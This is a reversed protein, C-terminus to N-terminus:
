LNEAFFDALKNEAQKVFEPTDYMAIHTAGEVLFLEKKGTALNVAHESFQRTDSIDGSIMLLPQTLLAPVYEFASFGMICEISSFLMQNTSRPHQARKTRYYEWAEKQLVTTNEDFEEASNPVYSIYFPDAGNAEKTRQEGAAELQAALEEKTATGRFAAGIDFSSLGAVAKIRHETCAAAIGYGGGACIGLVGIKRTDVYPLTTLYDVAARVDEIREAPNELYRPEGGSEGQHSADFALSVFGHGSMRDAYTGAVQEKVGGGPHVVVIAPYKEKGDFSEPLHLNGRMVIGANKFEASIM